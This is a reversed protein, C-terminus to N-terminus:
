IVREGKNQQNLKSFEKALFKKVKAEADEIATFEKRPDSNVQEDLVEMQATSTNMILPLIINDQGARNKAIFMKGTNLRVDEYKRSISIIVDAIQAKAFAEGISGLSVVEDDTGSRNTQSASVVPVQLEGALSRLDEYISELEHRKQEYNRRSKMLDAYDVIIIDPIINYHALKNIHNRLTTISASKTPYNKIVLKSNHEKNFEILKDKVFEKRSMINNIPVKSIIADYRNGVSHEYLEFTYHLVTKGQALAGKGTYALAWSKGIGTSALFISLEGKGFGGNLYKDLVPWGTSIATRNMLLIRKDFHEFYNHGFDSTEGANLADKIIRYIEEFKGEQLYDVSALLAKKMKQNKCFELTKDKVYSLDSVINKKVENVIIYCDDRLTEDEYLRVSTELNDISPVMKYKDYYELITKYLNRHTENEFYDLEFMDFVKEFFTQDVLLSQIIKTQFQAGFQSFTEKKNTM